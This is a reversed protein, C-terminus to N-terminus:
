GKVSPHTIDTLWVEGIKIITGSLLCKCGPIYSGGLRFAAEKWEIRRADQSFKLCGLGLFLGHDRYVM